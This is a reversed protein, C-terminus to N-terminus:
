NSCLQELDAMDMADKIVIRAQEKTFGVRQLKHLAAARAGRRVRRAHGSQCSLVTEILEEQIAIMSQM